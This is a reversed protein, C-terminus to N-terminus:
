IGLTDCASTDVTANGVTIIDGIVCLFADLIVQSTGRADICNIDIEDGATLAASSTGVSIACESAECVIDVDAFVELVSNGRTDFCRNCDDFIVNAGLITLDCNGATLVCADGNGHIEIDEGPDAELMMTGNECSLPGEFETEVVDAENEQFNVLVVIIVADVPPVFIVVSVEDGDSEFVLTVNNGSFSIPVVGVFDGDPEVTVEDEEVGNVIFTIVIQNDQANATKSLTFFDKIKALMSAKNNQPAMAVVSEVNGRITTTQGSPQGGGDGGGGGDCSVFCLSLVLMLLTSISIFKNLNKMEIRWKRNKNYIMLLSIRDYKNLEIM